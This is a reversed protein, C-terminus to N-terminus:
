SEKETATGPNFSPPDSAPFSQDLTTDLAQETEEDAYRLGAVVESTQHDVFSVQLDVKRRESLSPSNNEEFTTELYCSDQRDQERLHTLAAEPSQKLQEPYSRWTMFGKEQSPDQDQTLRGALDALYDTRLPM